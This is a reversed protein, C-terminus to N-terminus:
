FCKIEAETQEVKITSISHSKKASKSLNVSFTIFLSVSKNREFQLVICFIIMGYSLAICVCTVVGCIREKPFAVGASVSLACQM